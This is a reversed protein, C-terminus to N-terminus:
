RRCAPESTALPQPCLVAKPWAFDARHRRGCSSLLALATACHMTQKEPAKQTTATKGLWGNEVERVPVLAAKPSWRFPRQISSFPAPMAVQLACDYSRNRSSSSECEDKKTRNHSPATGRNEHKVWALVQVNVFPTQVGESFEGKIRQRFIITM